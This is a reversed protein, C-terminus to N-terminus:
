YRIGPTNEPRLSLCFPVIESCILSMAEQRLDLPRRYLGAARLLLDEEAQGGNRM